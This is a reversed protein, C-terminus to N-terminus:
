PVTIAVAGKRTVLFPTRGALDLNGRDVTGGQVGNRTFEALKGHLDALLVSASASVPESLVPDRVVIRPRGRRLTLPSCVLELKRTSMAFLDPTSVAAGALSTARTVFVLM